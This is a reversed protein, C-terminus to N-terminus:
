SANAGTLLTTEGEPEIKWVHKDFTGWNYVEYYLLRFGSEEPKTSFLSLSM